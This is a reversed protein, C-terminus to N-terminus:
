KEPQYVIDMSIEGSFSDTAEDDDGILKLDLKQPFNLYDFFLVAVGAVFENEEEREGNKIWVEIFLEKDQTEKPDFEIEFQENVDVISSAKLTKSKKEKLGIQMQIYISKSKAVCEQPLSRITKINLKVIGKKNEYDKAKYETRHTSHDSRSRATKTVSERWTSMKIEKERRSDIKSTSVDRATKSKQTRQSIQQMETNFKKENERQFTNLTRVSNKISEDQENQAKQLNYLINEQKKQEKGRQLREDELLKIEVEKRISRLKVNEKRMKTK